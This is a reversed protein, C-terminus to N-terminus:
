KNSDELVDKPPGQLQGSLDVPVGDDEEQVIGGEIQYVAPFDDPHVEDNGHPPMGGGDHEQMAGHDAAQCGNMAKRARGPWGLEARHEARGAKKLALRMEKVENGGWSGSAILKGLKYLALNSMSYLNYKRVNCYPNNHVQTFGHSHVKEAKLADVGYKRIADSRTVLGYEVHQAEIWRPRSSWCKAPVRAEAVLRRINDRVPCRSARLLGYRPRLEAMTALAREAGEREKAVAAEYSKWLQTVSGKRRRGGAAAVAALLDAKLKTHEQTQAGGQATCADPRLEARPQEAAKARLWALDAETEAAAAVCGSDVFRDWLTRALVAPWALTGAEVSANASVCRRTDMVSEVTGVASKEDVASSGSRPHTCPAAGGANSCTPSCVCALRAAADAAAVARAGNPAARAAATDGSSGPEDKSPSVDSAVLHCSIELWLDPPLHIHRSM